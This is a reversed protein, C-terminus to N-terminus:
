LLSQSLPFGSHPGFARLAQDKGKREVFSAQCAQREGWPFSPFTKMFYQNARVLRPNHPGFSPPAKAHLNSKNPVDKVREQGPVQSMEISRQVTLYVAPVPCGWSNPMCVSCCKDKGLCGLVGWLGGPKRKAELHKGPHEEVLDLSLMLCRVVGMPMNELECDRLGSKPWWSSALGDPFASARFSEPARSKCTRVSAM